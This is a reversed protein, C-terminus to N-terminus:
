SNDYLLGWGSPDGTIRNAKKLRRVAQDVSNRKIELSESLQVSSLKGNKLAVLIRDNVRMRAVFEPVNKPDYWEVTLADQSYNIRYGLPKSKASLNAKKHFLGIELSEDEEQGRVEWVSRAGAEFLVSGLITKSQTERDKSTHALSISTMKLKRLAQFYSTAVDMHNLDGGCALSMSDVIICDAQVKECHNMIAELDDALPMSCRRYFLSALGLDMGVDLKKLFRRVDDPDSEYDLFLPRHSKQPAKLRLPNDYWPLLMVVALLTAIQSKGSGPDGFLVTPKDLPAIPYILYELEGVEDASSLEIVPEGKEFERLTKVSLYELLKKWDIAVPKYTTEMEKAIETRSRKSTLTLNSQLLHHNSDKSTTTFLLQCTTREHNVHIRSVQADLEYEKWNFLYKNGKSTFTAESLEETM